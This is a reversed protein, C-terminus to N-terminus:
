GGAAGATGSKNFLETTVFSAKELTCGDLTTQFQALVPSIALTALITTRIFDM